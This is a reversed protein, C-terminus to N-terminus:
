VGGKMYNLVKEVEEISANRKIANAKYSIVRVNGKVYGKYSVIRDLTALNDQTREGREFKIGLVPCHTPIVIDEHTLNFPLGTKRARARALQLMHGVPNALRWRTSQGNKAPKRNARTWANHCDRCAAQRELSNKFVRQFDDVHKEEKCRYCVKTTQM